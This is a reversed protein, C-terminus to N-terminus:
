VQSSFMNMRIRLGDLFYLVNTCTTWAGTKNCGIMPKQHETHHKFNGWATTSRVKGISFGAVQSIRPTNLKRCAPSIKTINGFFCARAHVQETAHCHLDAHQGASVPRAANAIGNLCRRADETSDSDSVTTSKGTELFLTDQQYVSQLHHLGSPHQNLLSPPWMANLPYICVPAM